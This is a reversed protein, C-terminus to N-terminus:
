GARSIWWTGLANRARALTEELTGSADVRIWDLPGLDFTEQARAVAADADSADAERAGVRGLRTAMDTELFIGRFPVGLVAASREAGFREHPRAFMADLIASQGAAAARRAKDLIVSYVRATVDPLYADPPLAEDESRGFLAKREVDSRLVVAGPEPPFQPALALALRSKGTGSLGGIAVVIPKAPAVLRGAWDFYARAQRALYPRAEEGSQELRAATVKARIAARMSMYFPLAALGDLTEARRNETLYRNLVLNAAPSLRREVLDMLLFALDYLVDGSAILPSFEIADFLVPRGAILVINGLHLDGHIRCIFGRDGRELLLPRIRVYAARSEQALAAVEAAPFVDPMEGFAAAHEDIYDRLAEIWPEPDAAPAREHAQATVRGLRDTLALDIRGQDALRDLTMSEDFRQMEVAWEIPAGNGGVALRGDPERTIGVVGRYIEPAFPRNAEIEAECAAKRKDLTSFDLFPFRVARKVKLVRERTLFLVAAHTDIRKVAQQGHTAPNALLAFVEEQSEVGHDM